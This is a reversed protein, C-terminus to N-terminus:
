SNAVKPHFESRPTQGRNSGGLAPHTLTSQCHLPRYSVDHVRPARCHYCSMLTFASVRKFHVREISQNFLSKSEFVSEGLSLRCEGEGWVGGLVVLVVERERSCCHVCDWWVRDREKRSVWGRGGMGGYISGSIGIDTGHLVCGVGAGSKGMVQSEIIHSPKCDYIGTNSAITLFTATIIRLDSM